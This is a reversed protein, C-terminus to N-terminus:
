HCARGQPRSKWQLVTRDEELSTAGLLRLCLGARAKLAEGQDLRRPGWGATQLPWLVRISALTHLIVSLRWHIFKFESVQDEHTLNNQGKQLWPYKLISSEMDGPHGKTLAPKLRSFLICILITLTWAEHFHKKTNWNRCKGLLFSTPKKKAAFLVNPRSEPSM